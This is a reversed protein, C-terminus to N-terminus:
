TLVKQNLRWGIKSPYNQKLYHRRNILKWKEFVKKKRLLYLSPSNGYMLNALKECDNIYFCISYQPINKHRSFTKHINKPPINIVKCLQNNFKELFNLSASVFGAKIQPTGNVKYTYITGDGDFFGRVFDSFYKDPVEIHNLNATKRPLIGFNMLDTTLIPNRIQLQYAVNPANGSKKSIKHNSALIERIKYLHKRDASTINLSFPRSKRGKSVTICGDAVIYGLVYSM